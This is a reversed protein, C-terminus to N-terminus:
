PRFQDVGLFPRLPVTAGQAGLAPVPSRNVPNLSPHDFVGRQFRVDEDTLAIMFDVLADKEGNSLGLPSLEPNPVNGGRDYFDVVQRLTLLAGNHMYPGTLETNRVTPTKFEGTGLRGADEALPEVGTNAFMRGNGGVNVSANTFEAGGHCHDCNARGFFLDMGLQQRATLAGADGRVFRDFPTNPSITASEYMQVALGWFLSFNAETLSFQDLGVPTGRGIVNGARDTIVNSDWWSDVFADQIMKAFSVKLGVGSPHRLSGLASDQPHVRQTGLPRLALLKKGIDPFSRGAWAMEVDSNPPGVSQSAAASDLLAVPVPIVSGDAQVQLVPVGANGVTRGDFTNAARGDWFFVEQYVSNIYTPAQRGTVQAHPGFVANPTNIGADIGSGLNINAFDMDVVGQSGVIDDGTIPFFGPRTRGGAAVLDLTGNVRGPHMTNITRPDAGAAHHCSACATRGDSGVQQDWLFVKGLQVAARENKIFSALNAPRPVPVQDLSTQALSPVALSLAFLVTRGGIVVGVFPFRQM